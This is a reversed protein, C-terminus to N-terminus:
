ESAPPIKGSSEVEISSNQESEKRNQDNEPITREKDPTDASSVEPVQKAMPEAIYIEVRRNKQRKAETNDNRVRPQSKGAGQATIKKATVGLKVLKERILNARAKSLRLNYRREGTSDTHGYVFLRRQPSKKWETAAKRTISDAGTLPNQADGSKFYIRGLFKLYNREPQVSPTVFDKKEIRQGGSRMLSLTTEIEDSLEGSYRDLIESVSIVQRLNAFGKKKAQVEIRLAELEVIAKDQEDAYHELDILLIPNQRLFSRPKKAGVFRIEPTLNISNQEKDVFNLRLSLKKPLRIDRVLLIDREVSKKDHVGRTDFEDHATKFGLASVKTNYVRQNFITFEFRAGESATTEKESQLVGASLQIKASLPRLAGAILTRGTFSMRTVPRAFDPLQARYIDFAGRGEVRNSTFYVRKGNATVTPYEDDFESNFPKGINIPESWGKELMATDDPNELRALSQAFYIDYGGVGGDRNSSFYLTIGDAHIAPTVESAPTNIEGANRPTSWKGAAEDWESFWIDDGGRGGPRDSSFFLYRGDQSISPMRDHYDTNLEAVPQPISWKGGRWVTHYINTLQPGLRTASAFSAFYMEYEGSPLRRLSPHGDLSESNIPLGVNASTEFLPEDSKGANKNLSYWLDFDGEPGAAGDRNSQFFLYKEDPTIFPTYESDATNVGSGLNQVNAVENPTIPYKAAGARNTAIAVYALLLCARFIFM